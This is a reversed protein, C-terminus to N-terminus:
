KGENSKPSGASSRKRSKPCSRTASDRLATHDKPYGMFMELFLPSPQKKLVFTLPGSGIKALTQPDRIALRAYHAKLSEYNGRRWETATTTPWFGSESESIVPTLPVLQFVLRNRRTVLPNWILCSRRSGWLSSNLCTKLLLGLPGSQKSLGLWQRGSIATMARAEASGPVPGLNVLSVEPLSLAAEFGPLTKPLESTALTRCERGANPLSAAPTPNLKASDLPASDPGAPPSRSDGLEPFFTLTPSNM